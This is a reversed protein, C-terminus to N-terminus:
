KIQNKIERKTKIEIRKLEIIIPYKDLLERPMYRQLNSKLYTDSLQDIYKEHCKRIAARVTEKKNYKKIRQKYKDPNQDRWKKFCAKNLEIRKKKDRKYRCRDWERHKEPIMERYTNKYVRDCDKCQSRRGRPGSGDKKRSKRTQFEGEDKEIKCKTCTKM